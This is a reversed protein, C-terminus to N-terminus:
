LRYSTGYVVKKRGKIPLNFSLCSPKLVYLFTKLSVRLGMEAVFNRHSGTTAVQDRRQEQRRECQLSVQRHKLYLGESTNRICINYRMAIM